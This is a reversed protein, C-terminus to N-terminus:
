ADKVESEVIFRIDSKKMVVCGTSFRIQVFMDNEATNLNHSTEDDVMGYDSTLTIVDDTTYIELKKM